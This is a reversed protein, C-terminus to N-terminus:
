IVIKKREPTEIAKKLDWGIDLRGKILRYNFKLLEALEPLSATEGNYSYFKTKRTNRMNQTRTVFHCNDPSYGKKNDVRDLQLGQKYGNKFAWSTFSRSNNKWEDCITINSGGYYNYYHHNPNLCRQKMGLWVGYIPHRFKKGNVKTYYQM